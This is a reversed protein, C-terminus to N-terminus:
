VVRVYSRKIEGGPISGPVMRSNIVVVISREVLQAIALINIYDIQNQKCIQGRHTEFGHGQCEKLMYLYLFKVELSM